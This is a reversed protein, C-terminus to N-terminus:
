VQELSATVANFIAKNCAALEGRIAVVAEAQCQAIMGAYYYQRGMAIVALSVIFNLSLESQQEQLVQSPVKLGKNQAMVRYKVQAFALKSKQKAVKFSFTIKLSYLYLYMGITTNMFQIEFEFLFIGM